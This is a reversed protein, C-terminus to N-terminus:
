FIRQPVQFVDGAKVLETLEIKELDGTENNRRRISSSKGLETVGGAIALAQEITIDTDIQFVGPSRVEGYIYFVEAKPVYIIDGAGVFPNQTEGALGLIQDINLIYRENEGTDDNYDTFVLKSSGTSTPGGAMALVDSVKSPRDLTYQGPSNVFGLVAIKKSAFETVRITVAANLVVGGVEYATQIIQAADQESMGGVFAKGVVPLLVSNDAEVRAQISLEPHEFVRIEILDRPGLLYVQNSTPMTDQLPSATSSKSVGITVSLSIVVLAITQALLFYSRINQM